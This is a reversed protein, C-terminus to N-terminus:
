RLENGHRKKLRTMLEAARPQCHDCLRTGHVLATCIECRAHSSDCAQGCTKCVLYSERTIPKAKKGRKRGSTRERTVSRVWSEKVGYFTSIKKVTEKTVTTIGAEVRIVTSDGLELYECLDVLKVKRQYRLARLPYDDHM